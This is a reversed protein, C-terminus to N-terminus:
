ATGDVNCERVLSPSKSCWDSDRSMWGLSSSPSSRSTRRSFVSASASSLRRRFVSTRVVCRSSAPCCARQSARGRRVAICMSSESFIRGLAWVTGSGIVRSLFPTRPAPFSSRHAQSPRIIVRRFHRASSGLSCRSSREGESLVCSSPYRSFSNPRLVLRLLDLATYRTVFCSSRDETRLRSPFRAVPPSPIYPAPACTLFHITSLSLAAGRPWPPSCSLM